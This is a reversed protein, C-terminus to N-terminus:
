VLFRQISNLCKYCVLKDRYKILGNEGFEYYKEVWRRLQSKDINNEKSVSNINKNDM